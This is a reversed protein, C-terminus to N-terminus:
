ARACAHIIVVVERRRWVGCASHCGHPLSANNGRVSARGASRCNVAVRRALQRDFAAHVVAMGGRGLEEALVYRAAVAERADVPLAPRPELSPGGDITEGSWTATSRLRLPDDSM